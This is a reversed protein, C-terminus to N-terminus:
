NNNIFKSLNPSSLPPRPTTESFNKYSFDLRRKGLISTDNANKTTKRRMSTKRNDFMM